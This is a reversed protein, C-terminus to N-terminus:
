HLQWCSPLNVVGIGTGGTLGGSGGTPAVIAIMDIVDVIHSGATPAVGTAPRCPWCRCKAPDPGVALLSRQVALWRGLAQRGEGGLHGDQFRIAIVVAAVVTAAVAVFIAKGAIRSAGPVFGVTCAAGICERGAVVAVISSTGEVGPGVFALWRAALPIGVTATTAM